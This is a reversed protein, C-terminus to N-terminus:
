APRPASDTAAGNMIRSRPRDGAEIPISREANKQSYANM